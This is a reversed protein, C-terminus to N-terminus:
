QWANTGDVPSSGSTDTKENELTLWMQAWGASEGESFWVWRAVDHTSLAITLMLSSSADQDVEEGTEPDPVAVGQVKTVLVGHFAFESWPNIVDEQDGVEDPDVTGVLGIHDGPRIQGGVVRDAPLTFSVQQMGEPVPVDGQAGLEAPDAFRAVLLQEGPLIQSSAVLGELEALDSVNDGALNRQLVTDVRIYESVDEGATGAPIVEDVVYVKTLEAGASARADSASVYSILFFAGVVAIVLAAIAGIIRTKM